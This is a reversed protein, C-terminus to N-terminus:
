EVNKDRSSAFGHITSIEDQYCKFSEYDSILFCACFLMNQFHSFFFLLLFACLMIAASKCCFLLLLGFSFHM